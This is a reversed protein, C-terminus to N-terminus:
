TLSGASILIDQITVMTGPSDNLGGVITDVNRVLENALKKNIVGVIMLHFGKEESNWFSAFLPLSHLYSGIDNAEIVTVNASFSSLAQLIDNLKDERQLAIHFICKVEAQKEIDGHAHRLFAEKVELPTAKSIIEERVTKDILTRSITSLLRIHLDRDSDPAIIFFLLTSPNGDYAGFDIGKPVVLLGVVFESVKSLRCHPIAIGNEFGTSGIKERESLANFLEDETIAKLSPSKKALKAIERLIGEKSTSSTGVQICEEKLCNFIDM